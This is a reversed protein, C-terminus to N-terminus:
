EECNEHKQRTRHHANTIRWGLRPTIPPVSGARGAPHDRLPRAGRRQLAVDPHMKSLTFIDEAIRPSPSPHTRLHTPPKTEPCAARTWIVIMVQQRLELWLWSPLDYPHM